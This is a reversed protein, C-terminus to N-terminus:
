EADQLYLMPNISKEGQLVQLYLSPGEKVYYKTPKGLTAFQKGQEVVDGVKVTVTGLQGYRISYEESIRMTVTLGTKLEETIDTVVGKVAACVPMGETGSIWIADTTRYSDLTVHYVAHEPSYNLIVEGM